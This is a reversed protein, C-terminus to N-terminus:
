IKKLKLISWQVRRLGGLMSEKFNAGRGVNNIQNVQDGDKFTDVM